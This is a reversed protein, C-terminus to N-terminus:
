NCIRYSTHEKKLSAFFSKALANDWCIGTRGMSGVMNLSRLHIALETSTFQCVRDSHFVAGVAIPRRTNAMSLADCVLEARMHDAMAWGRVEKTHLDIVTALYM